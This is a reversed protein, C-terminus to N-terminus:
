LLTAFLRGIGTKEDCQILWIRYPFLRNKPWHDTTSYLCCKDFVEHCGDKLRTVCELMNNAKSSSLFTFVIVFQNCISYTV